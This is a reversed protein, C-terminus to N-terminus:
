LLFNIIEIIKKKTNKIISIIKKLLEYIKTYINEWSDLKDDIGEKKDDLIEMQEIFYESQQLLTNIEHVLSQQKQIYTDDIKIVKEFDAKHAIFNKLASKHKSTLTSSKQPAIEDYEKKLLKVNAQFKALDGSSIKSIIDRFNKTNKEFNSKYKRFEPLKNKISKQSQKIDIELKNKKFNSMETDHFNALAKTYDKNNKTISNIDADDPKSFEIIKQQRRNLIYNTTNDRMGEALTKYDNMSAKYSGLYKNVNIEEKQLDQIVKNFRKMNIWHKLSDLFGGKQTKKKNILANLKLIKSSNHKKIFTKTNKANKINKNYKKTRSM